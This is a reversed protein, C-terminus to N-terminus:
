GEARTRCEAPRATKLFAKPAASANGLGRLVRRQV